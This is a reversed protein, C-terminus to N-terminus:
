MQDRPIIAGKAGVVKSALLHGAMMSDSPGQGSLFAALYGGNFSDGAATSDVVASAPPYTQQPTGSFCLPGKVGRKMAGQAIGYSQLRAFASQEDPDGFLDMEDDVSPLAIDTCQWMEAIVERATENDEWLAPRYNSDFAVQGGRVRFERLWTLLAQRQEPPLIALTIASLYVIDFDSMNSLQPDEGAFLTRAASANRWYSFSREGHADTAIAYLGITRNFRRGILGTAIGEKGIVDIMRDSFADQGVASVYSVKLEPACRKLYIATNLTDGAVGIQAHTADPRPLSLEVM